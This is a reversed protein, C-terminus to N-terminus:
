VVQWFSLGGLRTDDSTLDQIEPINICCFAVRNDLAGQGPHCATSDEANREPDM